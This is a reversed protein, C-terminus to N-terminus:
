KKIVGNSAINRGADVLERYVSVLSEKPIAQEFAPLTNIDLELRITPSTPGQTVPVGGAFGLPVSIFSHQTVLWKSLRNLGLGPITKSEATPLNIQYLIDTSDPDIEVPIYDRLEIYASRRDGM